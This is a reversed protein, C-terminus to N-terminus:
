TDAGGGRGTQRSTHRIFRLVEFKSTHQCTRRDRTTSTQRGTDVMAQAKFQAVTGYVPALHVWRLVYSIQGYGSQTNEPVTEGITEIEVDTLRAALTEM